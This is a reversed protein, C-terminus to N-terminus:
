KPQTEARVSGRRGMERGFCNNAHLRNWSPLGLSRPFTGESKWSQKLVVCLTRLSVDIQNKAEFLAVAVWDTVLVDTSKNIRDEEM